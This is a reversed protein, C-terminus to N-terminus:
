CGGIRVPVAHHTIALEMLFAEVGATHVNIPQHHNKHTKIRASYCDRNFRFLLTNILKIGWTLLQVSFIKCYFTFIFERVLRYLVGATHIRVWAYACGERKM